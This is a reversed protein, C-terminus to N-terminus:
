KEVMGGASPIKLNLPNSVWLVSATCRLNALDRCVEELERAVLVEGMANHPRHLETLTDEASDLLADITSRFLTLWKLAAARAAECDREHQALCQRVARPFRTRKPKKM